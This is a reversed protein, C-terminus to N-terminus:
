FKASKSHRRDQNQRSACHISISSVKIQNIPVLSEIAPMELPTNPEDAEQLGRDKVSANVVSEV